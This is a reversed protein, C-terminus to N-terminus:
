AKFLGRRGEALAAGRCAGACKYTGAAHERYFVTRRLVLSDQVTFLYM